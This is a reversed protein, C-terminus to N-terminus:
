VATSGRSDWQGMTLQDKLSFSFLGGEMVRSLNIIFAEFKTHLYGGNIYTFFIM